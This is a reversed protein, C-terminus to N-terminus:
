WYLVNGESEKSRSSEIGRLQGIANPGLQWHPGLSNGVRSRMSYDRPRLAQTWAERSFHAAGSATSGMADPFVCSDWHSLTDVPKHVKQTDDACLM